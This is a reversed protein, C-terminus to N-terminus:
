APDKLDRSIACAWGLRFMEAFADVFALVLEDEKVELRSEVFKEMGVQALEALGEPTMGNIRMWDRPELDQTAAIARVRDATLWGSM